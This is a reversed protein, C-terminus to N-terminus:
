RGPWEAPIVLAFESGGEPPAAYELRGGLADALGASIALGLGAGGFKGGGPPDLQVFPEFVHEHVSPPIGPGTDRVAIRVSAGESACLIRVAGEPTFKISNGVLNLLIQRVVRRDTVLRIDECDDTNMELHKARAQAGLLDVVEEIVDATAFPTPEIETRGSEIRSIDLLDDVLGVLHAGATRVMSLQRRQEDNLPGAMERLLTETFGVVSNLPTRLEHSIHSLFRSKAASAHRLDLATARLERTREDVERELDESRRELEELLRHLETTDHVIALVLDEGARAMRVEYTRPVGDPGALTYDCIAPRGGGAAARITAMLTGAVNSPLVEEVTRGLFREPPMYPEFDHGAKYDIFRGSGDVVFQTDPNARIQADLRSVAESLQATRKAVERRLVAVALALLTGAAALAALSWLVWAPIGAGAPPTADGYVRRLAAYYVSGSDATFEGVRTDFARALARSRETRPFAVGLQVPKVVALQVLGRPSHHARFATRSVIAADVEGEDVATLADGYDAYPRYEPEVGLGALLDGVGQTGIYYTDDEIVAITRGGLDQLGRLRSDRRVAVVGWNSFVQASTFEFRPRREDTVAVVLLADLEGAETMTMGEAFDVAVYEVDWRELHAVEDFVEPFLGGARGDEFTSLPPNDYVGVRLREAAHAPPTAPALALLVLLPTLAAAAIGRRRAGVRLPFSM